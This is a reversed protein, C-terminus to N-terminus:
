RSLNKNKFIKSIIPKVTNSVYVFAELKFLASLGIYIAIGLPVQIVLTLWSGFGFFNVGYVCVCMFASLGMAPLIDALQELYSYNMLKKNPLSNIVQSLFGTLLLSYALAMVSIKFTALILILGILKKVIELKLFLDSRGLAKIANQNTTQIPYFMYTICFIVMFPYSPQWKDTLLISILAKGCAALGMLMPAIIFICTRMARRTMSKVTEISDQVSSMSPLLVSDISSTVNYVIINPFNNGKNYYGLDASSYVKGIILSRLQNYGTDLLSSALIKWGFSFLSKLRKFSFMLKPRWKVTFWLICTDIINNSLSQGVLAWAGYGKYALYIGFGASFLTGGLTSFFFKKFLLNKSVYANQIGRVGSILLTLSIVRVFLTLSSDEYFSAIFPACFFLIGYLAICMLLNFYFVSSFDLDDADKKQILSTSLGSDIFVFAINIFVTILAVTGYTEPALLRALVISVIFQVGQAGCREGLRWIFGTITKRKLSKDTM